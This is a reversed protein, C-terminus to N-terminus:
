VLFAFDHSDDLTIDANGNCLINGTNHKVVITRDTHDPRLILISGEGIDGSITITDLDDSAIDGATDVTHYNSTVTIVGAAITKETAEVVALTNWIKEQNTQLTNVHSAMVDDVNDVKAVYSLTSRAM